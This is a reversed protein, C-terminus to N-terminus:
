LAAVETEEILRALWTGKCAHCTCTWYKEAPTGPARTDMGANTACHPCFGNGYIYVKGDRRRIEYTYVPPATPSHVARSCNM